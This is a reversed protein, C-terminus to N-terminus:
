SAFYDALFTDFDVSDAAEIQRQREISEKAMVTLKTAMDASISESLLTDKHQEAQQMVFEGYSLNNDTM